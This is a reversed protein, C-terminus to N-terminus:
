DLLWELTRSIDMVMVPKDGLNILGSIVAKRKSDLAEIGWQIKEPSVNLIEIVRDVIMGLRYDDYKVIAVRTADTPPIEEYGLLRRASMVPIVDGRLNIVGVIEYPSHPVRTIHAMREISEVFLVDVAYVEAEIEFAIYQKLESGKFM